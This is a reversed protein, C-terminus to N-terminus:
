ACGACVDMPWPRAARERLLPQSSTRGCVLMSFPRDSSGLVRLAPERAAMFKYRYHREYLRRLHDEPFEKRGLARRSESQNFFRLFDGLDEDVSAPEAIGAERVLCRSKDGDFLLAKRIISPDASSVARAIRKGRGSDATVGSCSGDAHPSAVWLFLGLALIPPRAILRFSKAM